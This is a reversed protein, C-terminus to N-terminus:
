ESFNGASDPLGDVAACDGCMEHNGAAPQLPLRAAFAAQMANMWNNGMSSTDIQFDYAHDGVLCAVDFAGSAAASTLAAMSEDEKFGFDAFIAVVPAARAPVPVVPVPGASADGVAIKYHAVMGATAGSFDLSAQHAFGGLNPAALSSTAVWSYDRGNLSIGVSANSSSAVFDLALQPPRAGLSLHVQVAAPPVPRASGLTLLSFFLAGRM